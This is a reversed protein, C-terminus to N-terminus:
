QSAVKQTTPGLCWLNTEGRIFIRGDAFAPSADFADAMETRFLEKFQEAAEVVIAAGKRGFLYVRGAAISPSSHFEMGFDHEWQKKGDAATFCTLIGSSTVTFLLKGDCVPSTIDPVNEETSWAIKTKTVDGSGDPRIAFLKESPSVAFVLGASFIPSPTVEGNLGGVRWLEAGDLAAYAIIWPVAPTVIQTKGGAEILIPTAWSSGVRRARQWVIQGTRGDFAYLKSQGTEAEGQDLQLILRGKWTVLSAAHGYQNNLPGLKKQWVLKGEKSYSVLDGSGFFAYIREGDAAMTASARSAAPVAPSATKFADAAGPVAQHWLTQGTDADFAYVACEKEDAGCLFLRKEWLIPSNYGSAPTAVKWAIGNDTTVNWNTPINTSRSVGNGDPGRFRSWNHNSDSSPAGSETTPATEGGVLKEVDAARQPVATTANLGIILLVAGVAVGSGAVMWRSVSYSHPTDERNSNPLVSPRGSGRNMAIVFLAAGGLLLYVGSQKGDIHRFYQSRLNLDLQRIEKKLNEDGPNLRLKDKFDKLTASKLPDNQRVLIDSVLMTGGVLLLFIGAVYGVIRWLNKSNGIRM